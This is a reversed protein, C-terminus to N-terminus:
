GLFCQLKEGQYAAYRPRTDEPLPHRQQLPLISNWVLMIALKM